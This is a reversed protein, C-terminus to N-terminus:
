QRRTVRFPGVAYIECNAGGAQACDKMAADVAESEGARRSAMGIRGNGALALARWDADVMYEKHVRERAAEALPALPDGLLLGTVTFLRPVAVLVRDNVAYIQCPLVNRSGCIELVRRAAHAEGDPDGIFFWNRTPSLALAKPTAFPVYARAMHEIQRQEMLPVAAPDFAIPAGQPPPPLYPEPPMAPPKLPWVVTDGVAYVGCPDRSNKNCQEVAVQRAAEESPQGVVYWLTGTSSLAIAKFDRGAMYADRVMRRNRESVMPIREAVLPQPAPAAAAPAATTQTPPGPTAVQPPAPRQLFWWATGAIALLLVAVAAVALTPSRPAPRKKATSAPTVGAGDLRLAFAHVPRPINKVHQAGMDDAGITLKGLIQEYVGNSVCIGDPQALAELRAAINVGDGLLDDGKVVVDGLNIGIRFRMRRDDPLRENRSRMQEQLEIACRVAEVPSDFEALVGDGITKFVRGGRKPALEQFVAVREALTRLAGEEDIATMRSYGVVDAALITTLRRQVADDAM